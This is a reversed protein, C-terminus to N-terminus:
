HRASRSARVRQRVGIIAAGIGVLLATAPEPVTKVGSVRATLHETDSRSQTAATMALMYTHDVTFLTNQQLSAVFHGGPMFVWPVNGITADSTWTYRWLSAGETLDLLEILGQSFTPSHMEADLDINFTAAGSQWATFETVSSAEADAHEALVFLDLGFLDATAYAFCCYAPMLSDAIPNSSTITRTTTVIQGDERHLDTDSLTTRYQTSVVDLTITDARVPDAAVVSLAAM